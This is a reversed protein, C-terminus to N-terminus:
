KFPIISTLYYFYLSKQFENGHRHRKWSTIEIHLRVHSCFGRQITLIFKDLTFQM